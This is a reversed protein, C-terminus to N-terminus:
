KVEITNVTVGSRDDIMLEEINSINSGTLEAILKGFYDFGEVLKAVDTVDLGVYPRNQLWDGVDIRAQISEMVLKKDVNM